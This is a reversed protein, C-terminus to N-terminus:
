FVTITVIASNTYAGPRQNAAPTISGGLRLIASTGGTFKFNVNGPPNFFEAVAGSWTGQLFAYNNKITLPLTAGSPGLLQNPVTLRVQIRQDTPATLTWQGSKIPDTPTVDSTVGLTLLGFALNRTGAVSVQAEAPYAAILFLLYPLPARRM